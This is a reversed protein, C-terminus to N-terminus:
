GPPWKMTRGALLHYHLHDVTQGGDKGQNVVVRFGKNELQETKIIELLAKHVDLLTSSNKENVESICKLHKKPIILIHVPAQPNVDRFAMVAQDQYVVNAKIQGAGIKCFICDNM